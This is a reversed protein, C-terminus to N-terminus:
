GLTSLLKPVRRARVAQEFAFAIKLLAPESWARGFFSLGFPMGFVDGAPVSISPYGATAAASSSGGVNRGGHIYDTVPAPGGSPAVLADLKHQNMVADIGEARSLRRAKDLAELYPKETLPGKAQAQILKEQGFWPMERDKHKENFAILEELSHVPLRPNVGALYANLGAKFEYLLVQGTGFMGHTPLDAPDVVEAGRRKMEGLAAELAAEGPAGPQFFKRAVGIRAGKLGDADLFTAYDRHSKGRGAETAPDAPDVGALAGLLAAADAVTRTM